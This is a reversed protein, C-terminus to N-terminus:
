RSRRPRGRLVEALRELARAATVDDFGTYGLLLGASDAARLRLASLPTVDVGAAAASRAAQRDDLGDPLWGILHMGADAPELRLQGELAGAATLLAAQRQAYLARMRRLHRAFHGAEIFETLVAQELAPPQRDALARARTFAEVLRPPAVLYGLRLAPFLVKSFTGVYIVREARDLGQLAPLPRGVYRYESDYDDELIWAGASDAWELFALRRSLSMTRGLPFQHSPTVYALRASSQLRRGAAVDLGEEDVPVPILDAGAALLAARAGLYGPDEIWAADGPDLLLRGALDLAQQSGSVVIVQEAECRVGRAAGLYAALAERLPRYGAPDGNGLLRTPPNRWVRGALRSWDAFPFADLAPLGHRFPVPEADSGSLRPFGALAQGLRSLAPRAPPTAPIEPMARPLDAPLARAVYTGDGVRGEVYGEALLQDFAALVTNRAVSLEAALARTAPLRTGPPLEGALVARRLARYVQLYLPESSRPDLVLSAFPARRATQV